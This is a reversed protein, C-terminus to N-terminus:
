GSASMNRRETIQEQLYPDRIDLQRNLDQLIIFLDWLTADSPLRLSMTGALTSKDWQRNRLRKIVPALSPKGWFYFRNHTTELIIRGTHGTYQLRIKKLDQPPVKVTGFLRQFILQGDEDIAVKYTELGAMPVLIGAVLLFMALFCALFFVDGRDIARTYIIQITLMLAFIMLATIGIIPILIQTRGFQPKWLVKMM